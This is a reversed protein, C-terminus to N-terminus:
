LGNIIMVTLINFDGSLFIPSIMFSLSIM